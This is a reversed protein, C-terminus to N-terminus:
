EGRLIILPDVRASRRAPIWTATLAVTALLLASAAFIWPDGASVEHLMSGLLRTLAIAGAIGVVLGSVALRAGQMMVLRSVASPAAGLAMRVAMERTRRATEQTLVGYTGAASLMLAIVAFGGLLLTEFRTQASADDIRQDLSRVDFIPLGGEGGAVARRIAPVAALPDDSTRVMVTRAAYTFQLYPTYFSPPMRGDAVSGYRVDGVIGVIEASSDPRDFSSGGGFWVRKGLPNEPNFFRRAATENLIAVRPRGARDSAEFSRGAILPIGLTRFHDPGVYHRMVPPARGAAPRPRGVIFLTSNACTLGLPACGDVSSFVVGPLADIRALLRELFPGAVPPPYRTEPPQVRFTLVHDARVGIPARRLRALTDGMLAAGVSVILALAIEAIVILARIDIGGLRVSTGSAGSTGAKLATVPDLSATVVAPVGSFLLSALLAVLLSFVVVTGDMHLASFEGLQGYLNGPGAPTSPPALVRTVSWAVAAGLCGGGLAMIVSEAMLQRVIRVRTAGLAVRLAIERRRSSVAGLFLNALNVISLALVLGAAGFLLLLSRRHAPNLRAESLPVATASFTTGPVDFATPQASQIRAGIVDMAARARAIDVGPRLRGVVSIFNQNTTLHDAYSLVPAMMEPVWLEAVGTLGSFSDPMIGVVTLASGNVRIQSGVITPAGAFRRRWLREGIIAVPHSGPTDDEEPLFTRGIAPQVGLTAFYAASVQEAAVREPEPGELNFSQAGYTALASFPAASGRLLLYRPYSWRESETPRGPESATIYLMALRDPSAFPLPRLLAAHVAAYMAANAGVGLALTTMAVATFTPARRIGRLAVRLDQRFDNM